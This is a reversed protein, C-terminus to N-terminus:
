EYRYGGVAPALVQHLEEPHRVIVLRSNDCDFPLRDNRRTFYTNSGDGDVEGLSKFCERFQSEDDYGNLEQNSQLYHWADRMLKDTLMRM